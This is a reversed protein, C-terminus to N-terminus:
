RHRAPRADPRGPRPGDGRHAPGLRRPGSPHDPGEGTLKGALALMFTMIAVAVPLRVGDPTIVLACDNDTCAQIDVTDYGVGFRAVISLRGDEPFSEPEIRPM